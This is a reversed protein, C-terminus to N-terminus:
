PQTLADRSAIYGERARVKLNDKKQALKVEIKRQSGDFRQNTPRYTIMYQSRLERAIRTFSRELALIDGTFFARGGTEECLRDLIKDGSDKVTGSEVGPVVGATGAKTSIAFVMTETAQAMEIAERMTARSYTDDGDTIVVLARLGKVGRMKEDCFQYIADYLATQAGPKKISDIAKDLLDLKDTFDQKLDIDDDFSAFAVKDKRVRATTYIFNKAAEQQFKLKGTTSSSTDMLVAVYLPLNNSEAAFSDITQPKKDEYIVFDSQTLNTVPVDKKDLVSVPLNVRRTTIVVGDGDQQQQQQPSPNSGAPQTTTAAGSKTKPTQGSALFLPAMPLM